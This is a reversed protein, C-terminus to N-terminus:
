IAFFAPGKSPKIFLKFGAISKIRPLTPPLFFVRAFCPPFSPTRSVSVPVNVSFGKVRASLFLYSLPDVPEPPPPAVSM